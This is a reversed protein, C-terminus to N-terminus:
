GPVAQPFRFVRDPDYRRKVDILRALNQGYYAAPWHALSPDIFNQYAQGRPALARYMGDLWDLGAAVVRRSDRATWTTESDMLYAQGRHAFATAAPDVRAIAGGWAFLTVGAGGPNSSGPWRELWRIATDVDPQDLFRSRSAFRDFPVNHALAAQAALYSLEEVVQESPRAVTLVPALLGELEEARGFFLGLANVTRKPSGGTAPGGGSVGLGIRCSLRGPATAVLDLMASVATRADRWPWALRYVAVRGVPTARVTFRTNIGFNGGGGGQCAWFLDPQEVPSVRLARGSATVVETELLQDCTLGLHRSSFGFGGGLLLGSVGVTPCRGSPVAVGAGALGAYLDRNRTGAGLTVTLARRDVRISRMPALSIVLGRSACYGAYSHGGSRAAFPVDYARAWALATQVDGTDACLAVGGPRIAAYRRNYPVSAATYGPDGPRLLRGHLRRALADWNPGRGRGHHPHQHHRHQNPDPDAHQHPHPHQHPHHHPLAAVGAAGAALLAAGGLVDRRTIETM